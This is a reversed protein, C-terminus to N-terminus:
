DRIFPCADDHPVNYQNCHEEHHHVTMYVYKRYTSHVTSHHNMNPTPKAHWMVKKPLDPDINADLLLEVIDEHQGLVAAHLATGVQTYGHTHTTPLSPLSHLVSFALPLLSLSLPFHLPPCLLSLQFSFPLHPSLLSLQLSFPFPSSPSFHSTFFSLCSDYSVFTFPFPLSFPSPHTFSHMHLAHPHHLTVITNLNAMIPKVWPIGHM